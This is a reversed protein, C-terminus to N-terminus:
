IALITSPKVQAKIAHGLNYSSFLVSDKETKQIVQFTIVDDMKIRQGVNKTVIKYTCRKTHAYLWGTGKLVLPAILFALFLFKKM